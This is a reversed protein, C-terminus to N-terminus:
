LDKSTQFDVFITNVWDPLNLKATKDETDMLFYVPYQPKEEPFFGCGDSLYLLADIKEGGTMLENAKEFVPIFSTGGLGCFKHTHEAGVFEDINYYNKEATIESDCELYCIHEISAVSKVEAFINLLERLFQAGLEECSGSTDIAIVLTHFKKVEAMEEPEILPVDGYLELGYQYLTKDIEDEEKTSECINFLEQLVQRYCNGSNESANVEYKRNLTGTGQRKEMISHLTKCVINPSQIEKIDTNSLFMDRACKWANEIRIWKANKEEISKGEIEKDKQLCSWYKHDDMKVLSGIKYVFSRLRRDSQSRHYLEYGLSNHVMKYCDEEYPSTYDGEPFEFCNSCNKYLADMCRKVQLDMVAWSLKQELMNKEEFHGLLGHMLIHSIIREMKAAERHKCLSIVDTANFFLLEGDTCICINEKVAVPKLLSVAFVLSYVKEKINIMCRKIIEYAIKVEKTEENEPITSFCNVIEGRLSINKCAM